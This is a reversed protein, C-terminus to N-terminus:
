VDQAKGVAKLKRLVNKSISRRGARNTKKIHLIGDLHDIEHQVVIALQGQASLLDKKGGETYYEVEVKDARMVPLDAIGPFSLCGEYGWVMEPSVYKIRPNFMVLREDPKGYTSGHIAIIRSSHGIQPAALGLGKYKDL